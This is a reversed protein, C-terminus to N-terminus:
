VTHTGRKGSKGVIGVRKLSARNLCGVIVRGGNREMWVQSM